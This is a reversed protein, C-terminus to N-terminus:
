SQGPRKSSQDQQDADRQQSQDQQGSRQGGQGQQGSRQGSQDQQGGRQSGQDQQGSKQGSQRQQGKDSQQSMMTEQMGQSPSPNLFLVIAETAMARAHDAEGPAPPM